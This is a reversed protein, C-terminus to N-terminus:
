KGLKENIVRIQEEGILVDWDVDLRVIRDGWCIVFENYPDNEQYWRYVRDAGWPSPDEEKWYLLQETLPDGTGINQEMLDELCRDYLLALKVDVIEYELRYSEKGDPPADQRAKMWNLLPSKKETMEYSYYEHNTETLEEITLPLEDRYIEWEWTNGNKMTIEYIEVPQKSLWGRDIGHFIIGIMVGMALITGVVCAVITILRNKKGSMGKRKFAEKMREVAWVLLLLVAVMALAYIGSTHTQQTYTFMAWGVLAFLEVGNLGTYIRRYFGINELCSGGEAVAIKSRKQWRYYGSLVIVYGVLLMAWCILLCQRATDCFWGVPDTWLGLLQALIQMVAVVSMLIGTPIFSKKMSKHIAQLKLAEDTEIPIPNKRDSYLIQMQAWEAALKWGAEECYDLFVQQNETPYPNFESTESFYTVTYKLETSETPEIVEYTWVNGSIKSLRWGKAAMKELHDAIGSYDYFIFQEFRRKKARM